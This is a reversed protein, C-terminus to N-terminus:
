GDAEFDLLHAGHDVLDGEGFHLKTVTGAAPAEIRHEMKMAEMVMLVQGAEVQDGEAVAVQLVKGPMPAAFGDHQDDGGAGGKTKEFYFTEGALTVWVGGAVAKVFYPESRDGVQIRGAGDNLAALEFARREEDQAITGKLPTRQELDVQYRQGNWKFQQRM